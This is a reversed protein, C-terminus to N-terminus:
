GSIWPLLAAPNLPDPFSRLFFFFFFFDATKNGTNRLETGEQVIQIGSGEETRGM